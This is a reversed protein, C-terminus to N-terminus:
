KPFVRDGNESTLLIAATPCSKAAELVSENSDEGANELVIAKSEEDLNFTHPAIAVCTAAGICLDRDIEIEYIKVKRKMSM